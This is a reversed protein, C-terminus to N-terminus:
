GKRRGTRRKRKPAEDKASAKLASEAERISRLCTARWEAKTMHTEKDWLQMCGSLTHRPKDDFLIRPALPPVLEPTDKAAGGPAVVVPAQVPAPESVAPTGPKRRLALQLNSRPSTMGGTERGDPIAAQANQILASCVIVSPLVCGIRFAM